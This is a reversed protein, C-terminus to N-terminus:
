FAMTSDEDFETTIDITGPAHDCSDATSLTDATTSSTGPTFDTEGTLDRDPSPNSRSTEQRFSDEAVDAASASIAQEGSLVLCFTKYM